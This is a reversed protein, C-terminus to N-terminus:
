RRNCWLGVSGTAEDRRHRRDTGRARPGLGARSPSKAGPQRGTRDRQFQTRAIRASYRGDRERQTRSVPGARRNKRTDAGWIGASQRQLLLM